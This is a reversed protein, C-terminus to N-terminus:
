PKGGGPTGGPKGGGGGGGKTTLALDIYVLGGEDGLDSDGAYIVTSLNNEGQNVLKTIGPGFTTALTSGCVPGEADNGDLAMTLRYLGTAATKANWNYGYVISGSSTIETTWAGTYTAVNVLPAGVGAGSWLGTTQDWFPSVSDPIKQIVLRACNSYM